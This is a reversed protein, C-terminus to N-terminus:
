NKKILVYGLAIIPLGIWISSKPTTTVPVPTPTPTPTKVVTKRPTITPQVMVKTTPKPTPTSIVNLGSTVIINDIYGSTYIDTQGYDGVSGLYLRDMGFINDGAKIFYGWIERGISPDSVKMTMIRTNDNYILSVHYTKNLSFRATNGMYGSDVGISKGQSDIEQLFNNPSVIRLTMLNGYKGTNFSTLAIPGKNIDMYHDSLGIRFTAGEDMRTFFVDYDLTFSRSTLTIPIYAYNNTSPEVNFEYVGYIANWKDNSPNNTVWNPNASFPTEYVTTKIEAAISPYIVLCCLIIFIYLLINSKM